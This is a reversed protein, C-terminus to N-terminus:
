ILGDESVEQEQESEAPQSQEPVPEEPSTQEPEPTPEAAPAAGDGGGIVEFKGFKGTTLQKEGQFETCYGNTIHIVMGAKVKDIDDNWLTLKIESSDDKAIANAVRLKKGYKEFERPEDVSVIEITTDINGQNPNIESIKM